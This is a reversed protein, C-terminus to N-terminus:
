ASVGNQHQLLRYSYAIGKVVSNFSDSEKIADKGFREVFEDRLPKVLSTGGTLFVTNIENRHIGVNLLFADLYNMIKDIDKKIINDKFDQITINEEIQIGNECFELVGTNSESLEIKTKEIQRFLIYGLNKEVLTILNKVKPNKGSFVYSREIADMMRVSDLFNIKEWSCINLFYSLPLDIWQANNIKEQVGRGFHPTGKHWMMASDFNDGGIYIGGKAIMDKKRDPQFAANPNLRMISFDSTGGGFDGVLVMEAQNLQREYALAAGLPEFQFSLKTFGALKAAKELRNQALLDRDAREDFVVPRGLIATEVCTGLYTDAAKKLHQLIFAVLEEAKFRQNGIKTDVFSKNPLVKKISKMFRGKMRSSVYNEIADKGVYYTMQFKSPQATPFFLLSPISIIHVIENQEVDLIALASNTTGFDIGYIYKDM